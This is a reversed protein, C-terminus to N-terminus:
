DFDWRGIRKNARDFDRQAGTKLYQKYARRTRRVHARIDSQVTKPNWVTWLPRLDKDINKTNLIIDMMIDDGIEKIKYSM